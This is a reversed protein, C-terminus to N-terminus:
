FIDTQYVILTTKKSISPTSLQSLVGLGRFKGYMISGLNSARRLFISSRVPALTTRDDVHRRSGTLRNAAFCKPTGKM